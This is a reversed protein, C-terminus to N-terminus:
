KIGHAERLADISDLDYQQKQKMFDMYMFTHPAGMYRKITVKNGGAVLKMAYAEGEDRLPDCEATRVLAPCLDKFNPAKLPAFWWEPWVGRLEDRRDLPACLEGFWKIRPFALVPGRSFEHFSPFPSDTYFRYFLGDVSPPVTPMVLRLPVGADRAMHQLVLSIHGGASVGGLSVSDARVNLEGSGAESRVWSLAAWADQFCKGWTAEPCHRYNVDIVAVGAGECMSLCLTSETSLNGLVFGGGHFNLHVPYPGPGHQAEDPYYVRVPVIAGDESTVEKEATRPRGKTDLACPPALVRPDARVEEITTVHTPDPVKNMLDAWATVFDPDLKALVHPEIAEAPDYPKRPAAM